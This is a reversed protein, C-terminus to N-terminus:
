IMFNVIELVNFKVQFTHSCPRYPCFGRTLIKKPQSCDKVTLNICIYDFLVKYSGCYFFLHGTCTCWGLLPADPSPKKTVIFIECQLSQGLLLCRLTAFPKYTYIYISLPHCIPCKKNPGYLAHWSPENKEKQFPVSDNLWICTM